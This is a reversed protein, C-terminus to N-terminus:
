RPGARPRRTVHIPRPTAATAAIRDVAPPTPRDPGPEPGPARRRSPPRSRHSPPGRLQRGIPLRQVGCPRHLTGVQNSGGNPGPRPPSLSVGIRPTSGPPTPPSVPCSMSPWNERTLKLILSFIVSVVNWFYPFGECCASMVSCHHLPFPRFSLSFWPRAWSHFMLPKKVGNPLTPAASSGYLTFYLLM